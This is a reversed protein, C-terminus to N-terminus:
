AEASLEETQQSFINPGFEETFHVIQADDHCSDIAAFRYFELREFYIGRLSEYSKNIFECYLLTLNKLSKLKSIFFVDHTTIDISNLVLDEIIYKKEEDFLESFSNELLFCNILDFSILNELNGLMKKDNKGIHFGYLSLTWLYIEIIDTDFDFNQCSKM